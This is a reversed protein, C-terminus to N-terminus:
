DRIIKSTAEAVTGQATNWRVAIEFPIPWKLHKEKPIGSAHLVQNLGDIVFDQISRAPDITLIKKLIIMLLGKTDNVFEFEIDRLKYFGDKLDFPPNARILVLTNVKDDAIGDLMKLDGTIETSRKM